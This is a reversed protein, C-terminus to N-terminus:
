REGQGAAEFFILEGNHDHPAVVGDIRITYRDGQWYAGHWALIQAAADRNARFGFAPQRVSRYKIEVNVLSDSTDSM